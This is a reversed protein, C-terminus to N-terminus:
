AVRIANCRASLPPADSKKVYFVVRLHAIGLHRTLLCALLHTHLHFDSENWCVVRDSHVDDALKLTARASMGVVLAGVSASAAAAVVVVVVVVVAAAAAAAAVSDSYSDYVGVRVIMMPM